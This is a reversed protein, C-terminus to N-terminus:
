GNTQPAAMFALDNSDDETAIPEGYRAIAGSEDILVARPTTGVKFSHAIRGDQDVITTFTHPHSTNQLYHTAWEACEGETGNCVAYLRGEVKHWLSFMMYGLHRYRPSGEDSPRVFLLISESDCLEESLVIGGGVRLARFPPIKSHAPLYDDEPFDTMLRKFWLIDRVVLRLAVGEVLVIVILVVYSAAVFLDAAM